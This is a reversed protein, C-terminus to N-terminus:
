FTPYMLELMGTTIHQTTDVTFFMISDPNSSHAFGLCHGLEHEITSIPDYKQSPGNHTMTVICKDDFHLTYASAQEDGVFVDVKSVFRFEIPYKDGGYKFVEKGISKNWFEM